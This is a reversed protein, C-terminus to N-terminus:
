SPTTGSRTASHPRRRFRSLEWLRWANITLSHFPGSPVAM